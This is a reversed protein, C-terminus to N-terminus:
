GTGPSSQMAANQLAGLSKEIEVLVQAANYPKRLMQLNVDNNVKPIDGFGTAILVPLDPLIARAARALDIGSMGSMAYDTIMLNVMRGNRLLDLAREGSEAEIADFGLEELLAATSACVLSDDDVVLITPRAAAKGSEPRPARAVVTATAATATGTAMATPGATAAVTANANANASHAPPGSLRSIEAAIQSQQYPKRLKRLDPETDAPLEAYGTALLVPLEPLLERAARALEMGTMGPMLYDTILLDIHAGERLLHLAHEGSEAELAVHGLDELLAATSAGVLADDDVVLITLGKTARTDGAPPAIEAPRAAQDTVPLWLEASTGQGAESRLRLAGKLQRM